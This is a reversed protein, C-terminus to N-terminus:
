VAERSTGSLAPKLVKGCSCYCEHLPRRPYTREHGDQCAYPYSAERQDAVIRDLLGM